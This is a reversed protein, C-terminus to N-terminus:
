MEWIVIIIFSAISVWVGRAFYNIIKSVNGGKVPKIMEWFNCVVLGSLLVTAAISFFLKIM